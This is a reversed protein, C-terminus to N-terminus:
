QKTMYTRYQSSIEMRLPKGENYNIIDDILAFTVYERRDYTPGAMHPITYANPMTRLPHDKPLPEQEYVDLVATFREKELERVLAEEDIVAGRSTNVFVAGDPILSLLEKGIMHYTKETLASHVSIVKCSSFIEELSAREMGYRELEEDSIHSSYVKIKVRFPKLFKVLHKPIMGFSVFGVTQDLLGDWESVYDYWGNEEMKKMYDPIKRLGLLSYAVIAEAVSEAYVDNGSLVKIGKEYAYDDVVSTVTGGTHAIIKLTDNGELVSKDLMPSGWGTIVVDVGKLKEKIEEGTLQESGTNYEVSGLAELRKKCEKTIFSDRTAGEPQAVFIRM